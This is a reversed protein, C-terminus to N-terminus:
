SEHQTRVAHLFAEVARQFRDGAELLIDNHGADPLEVFQKEVGGAAHEPAARFLRKGQEIPVIRDRSGHVHLYPCTVSAIWDKAPFRDVLLLSVPLFPYHHRGTETMSSFTSRVILGAPPTGAECLESALHVAVAGGLSEGYLVIRDAPVKREERAHEWVARADRTLGEESPSGPNEAYGRYDVILVDAGAEIFVRCEPIRYKRNAANGSFFLVLPHNAGPNGGAAGQLADAHLYWGHLQLEDGTQVRVEDVGNAPLGAERPSVSAERSPHYILSRQLFALMAAIVLYVVLLRVVVGLVRRTWRRLPTPGTQPAGTMPQQQRSSTKSSERPWERFFFSPQFGAM